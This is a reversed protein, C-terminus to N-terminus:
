RAGRRSPTNSPAAQEERKRIVIRREAAHARWHYPESMMTFQLSGSEGQWVPGLDIWVTTIVGANNTRECPALADGWPKNKEDAM